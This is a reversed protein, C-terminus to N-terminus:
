EKEEKVCFALVVPGPQDASSIGDEGGAKVTRFYTVSAPTRLWWWTTSKKKTGLYRKCRMVPDRFIDIQTDEPEFKTWCRDKGFVQTASLCFLNDATEIREGRIVQVVKTPSIVSIVEKPLMHLIEENAYRRIESEKWGGNDSWERNAAHLKRPINHFIFYAKRHLPLSRQGRSM